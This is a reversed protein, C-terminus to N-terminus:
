RAEFLFITERVGGNSWTQINAGDKTSALRVNLYENGTAVKITYGGERQRIVWRQLNSGSYSTQFVNAGDKFSEATLAKGSHVFLISYTGDTQRRIDVIQNTSKYDTWTQANVFDDKSASRIDIAKTSDLETKIAYRGNPLASTETRVLNFM